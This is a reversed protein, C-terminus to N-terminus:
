TAKGQIGIAALLTATEALPLGVVGSYSGQMWIAFASAHGQIAYAGAKGQWEGTALYADIQAATLPRFRIVTEVLRERLRGGHALAVSTLVRHRRGSLLQLFRRAEAADAPKGLIRRGAVVATDACLVADGAHGALAAAKERAMRRVYDRPNEGRQPAEDIEAPLIRDPVIGIQALLELRRPSASGLVLAPAAASQLPSQAADRLDQVATM